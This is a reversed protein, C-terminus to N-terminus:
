LTSAKITYVDDRVSQELDLFALFDVASADVARLDSLKRSGIRYVAPVEHPAYKGFHVGSL